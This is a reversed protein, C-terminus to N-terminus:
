RTGDNVPLRLQHAAARNKDTAQYLEATAGSPCSLEIMGHNIVSGMLDLAAPMSAAASVTIKQGGAVTGKLTTNNQTV